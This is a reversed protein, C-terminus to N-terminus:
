LILLVLVTKISVQGRSLKANVFAVKKNSQFMNQVKINQIHFNKSSLKRIVPLIIMSEGNKYLVKSIFIKSFTIM